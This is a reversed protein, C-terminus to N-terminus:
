SSRTFFVLASANDVGASGGGQIPTFAQFTFGQTDGAAFGIGFARLCRSLNLRYTMTNAASPRRDPALDRFGGGQSDPFGASLQSDSSTFDGQTCWGADSTKRQGEVTSATHDLGGADIWERQTCDPGPTACEQQSTPRRQPRWISVTVEVDSDGDPGDAVPFGNEQTSGPDGFQVPYPVVTRNGAEDVYSALAPTTAFIFQQTDTLQTEQGNRTLRLIYTDGTGIQSANAHHDLHFITFDPGRHIPELTGHGDGDADCCEPFVDRPPPLEVRGTGGYSCYTLGGVLPPPPSPNPSGGCDLEASYGEPASLSVFGFDPLVAAIESDSSGANVNATRHLPVGGLSSQLDFPDQHGPSQAKRARPTRDFKDLVRDGDDDIDLRDPVGDIDLDGPVAGRKPTTRVRGFVGAGIPVGRRARATLRSDVQKGRLSKSTQAHGDRVEVRGLRAGARVGVIARKGKRGVVVPGAYIGDADRLQLTVTNSPPRLSFRGRARVSKAAGNAALAIVTYGPQSLKGTIPKPAAGAVPVGAALALCCALLCSVVVPPLFRV